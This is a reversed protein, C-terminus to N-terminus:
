GRSDLRGNGIASSARGSVRPLRGGARPRASAFERTLRWRSRIGVVAHGDRLKSPLQIPPRPTSVSWGADRVREAVNAAALLHDGDGGSRRGEPGVAVGSLAIDSVVRRGQISVPSGARRSSTGRRKPSSGGSPPIITRGISTMGNADLAMRRGVRDVDALM